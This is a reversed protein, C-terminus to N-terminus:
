HDCGTLLPSVVHNAPVNLTGAMKAPETIYWRTACLVNSCLYKAHLMNALVGFLVLTLERKHFQFIM